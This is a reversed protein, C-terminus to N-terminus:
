QKWTAAVQQFSYAMENAIQQSRELYKAAQEATGDFLKPDEYRVPIRQEAGPIFPCGEDAQSCTMIAAFSSSPNFPADFAKSFAVLPPANEGYKVAYVPNDGESLPHIHFGQQQLTSAVMPFLATAETGGSYCYVQPIGWYAAMTQAWIQSLHSRRSNHTCIFNLHIAAGKRVKDVMFAIFPQLAERREHSIELAPLAEIQTRLAPFLPQTNM